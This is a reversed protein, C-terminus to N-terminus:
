IILMDFFIFYFYGLKLTYIVYEEHSWQGLDTRQLSGCQGLSIEM